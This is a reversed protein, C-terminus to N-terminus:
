KPEHIVDDNSGGVVLLEVFFYYSFYEFDQPLLQEVELGLLAM